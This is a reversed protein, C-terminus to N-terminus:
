LDSTKCPRLRVHSFAVACADGLTCVYRCAASSHFSFRFKLLTLVLAAAGNLSEVMEDAKERIYANGQCTCQSACWCPWQFVEGPRLLSGTPLIQAKPRCFSWKCLTRPATQLWSRRHVVVASKTFWWAHYCLHHYDDISPFQWIDLESDPRNFFLDLATLPM